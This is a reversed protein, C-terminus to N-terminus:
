RIGGGLMVLLMAALVVPVAAEALRGARRAQRVVEIRPPLARLWRSVDDERRRHRAPRRHWGWESRRM